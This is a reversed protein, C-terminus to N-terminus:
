RTAAREILRMGNEHFLGRVFDRGLGLREVAKRIARLEEYVFSTFVLKRHEDSISLTWPVPTVCAYQDNIEVAKGPALALPADTGFLIRRADLTGFAHELVEANNLTALDVYM